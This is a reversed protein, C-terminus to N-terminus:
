TLSSIFTITLGIFILEHLTMQHIANSKFFIQNTQMKYLMEFVQLLYIQFTPM